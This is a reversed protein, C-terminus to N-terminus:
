GKLSGLMIGKAFYKQVFPYVLVIPMTVMVIAAAKTNEPSVRLSEAAQVADQSALAAGGVLNRLFLTVPFRANTRLFILGNFWDNWYAVAYYLSLTALIARSLPLVITVLIGWAGLGDIVAAEELEQPISQFFTRMIIMNYTSMALPLVIAWMSDTLGLGRVVLYRPVLSPPFLMTFIVVRTFVRAVPLNRRSLPYACLITAAMAVVTGVATYLITNRYAPLFSPNDLVARYAAVTPDVPVLSVRGATIALPASLSLAVIYLFPFVTAFVVLVMACVIAAQSLGGARSAVM